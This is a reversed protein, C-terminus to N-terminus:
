RLGVYREVVKDTALCFVEVGRHMFSRKPTPEWGDRETEFEGNNLERAVKIFSSFGHIHWQHDSFPYTCTPVQANVEECLRCIELIKDILQEMKTEKTM